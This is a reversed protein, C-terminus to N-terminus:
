HSEWTSGTWRAYHSGSSSHVKRYLRMYRPNGPFESIDGWSKGGLLTVAKRVLTAYFTEGCLHLGGDLINDSTEKNFYLASTYAANHFLVFADKHNNYFRKPIGGTQGHWKFGPELVLLYDDLCSDVEDYMHLLMRFRSELIAVTRSVMKKKIPELIEFSRLYM